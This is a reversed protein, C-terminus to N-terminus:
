GLLSMLASRLTAETEEASLERHRRMFDLSEMQTLLDGATFAAVRDADDMAQLEPAFQVEVPRFDSLTFMRSELRKGVCSVLATKDEAQMPPLKKSLEILYEYKDMWDDLLKLREIIKQAREELNM